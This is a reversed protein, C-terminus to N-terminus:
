RRWVSVHSASADTFPEEDWGGWRQALQLGAAAAMDDLEHPWAYRLSVPVLRVGDERLLVRSADVRQNPADHIAVDLDVEDIEIRRVTVRQGRDFMTLDPVFAEIVFRGGPALREAVNTFCLRQGEATLLNFFTNFVVFVLAYQGEVGVEAFDGIVVDLDAGGPKARLKAVMAESADIGDVRIGRAALPLAVRGTGIGLELASGGDALTALRAAARDPDSALSALHDYVEAAEDGYTERQWGKM